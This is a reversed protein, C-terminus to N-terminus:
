ARRLVNERIFGNDNNGGPAADMIRQISEPARAAQQQVAAAGVLKDAAAGALNDTVLRVAIPLAVKDLMPGLVGASVVDTGFRLAAGKLSQSMSQGQVMGKAFEFHANMTAGVVIIVGQDKANQVITQRFGQATAQGARTLLTSANATAGRAAAGIGIAGVAFTASADIMAAGVNGTDQYTATGKLASGGGLVALATGGSLFTAGVVLTTASLDRVVTAAQQGIEGRSVSREINGMTERSADRQMRKLEDSSHTTEQRMQVLDNFCAGGDKLMSRCISDFTQPAQQDKAARLGDFNIEVTVLDPGIFKTERVTRARARLMSAHLYERVLLWLGMQNVNWAQGRDDTFYVWSM